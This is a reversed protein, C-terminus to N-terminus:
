AAKALKAADAAEMAAYAANAYIYFHEHQYPSRYSMFYILKYRDLPCKWDGGKLTGTNIAYLVNRFRQRANVVTDVKVRRVLHCAAKIAPDDVRAPDIQRFTDTDSKDFIALATRQDTTLSKAWADYAAQVGDKHTKAEPFNRQFKAVRNVPLCVVTATPEHGKIIEVYKSAEWRNLQACYYIPEDQDIDEAQIHQFTGGVYADYSGTPRGHRWTPADKPLKIAKITEWDVVRDSDVWDPVNAAAGLAFHVVASDRTGDYGLGEAYQVLKRKHTVTFSEVTYGTVFLASQATEIAIGTAPTVSHQTQKRGHWPAVTWVGPIMDPLARGKFKFNSAQKNGLLDRYKLAVRIAGGPTTAKDVETQVSKIVAADLRKKLDALTDTTNKSYMLAERSPPFTVNGIPVWAVVQYNNPLGTDFYGADVPYAVNGMVVLTPRNQDRYGVYGERKVLCIDDTVWLGDVRKPAEGNVLVSGEPWYSYFTAAKSAFDESDGRKVPVIVETGNEGDDPVSAVVTFVPVGNDERSISCVTRMGDKVSEVTFQESYTLAAKCGLGLMGNQDNTARKTSSGYRSYITRIDEADLGCGSDRLKFFPTLNNPLTVQIPADIGAEIQADRANTSYERIVAMIQDSYLDTFLAIIHPMNEDDIGATYQQGGLNGQVTVGSSREAIM